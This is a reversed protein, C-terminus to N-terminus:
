YQKLTILDGKQTKQIQKKKNAPAALATEGVFAGVGVFFGGAM